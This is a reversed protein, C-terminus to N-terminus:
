FPTKANASLYLIFPIKLDFAISAGYGKKNSM